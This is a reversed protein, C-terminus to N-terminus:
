TLWELTKHIRAPQPELTEVIRTENKFKNLWRLLEKEVVNDIEESKGYSEPVEWLILLQHLYEGVDSGELYAYNSLEDYEKITFLNM